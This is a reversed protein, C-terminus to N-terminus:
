RNFDAIESWRPGTSEFKWTSPTVRVLWEGEWFVLIINKRIIYCDLCLKRGNQWLARTQCVSLGVSLCVSLRVSNEDSSRTQMGHLATFLLVASFFDVKGRTNKSDHGWLHPFRAIIIKIWWLWPLLYLHYIYNFDFYIYMYCVEVEASQWVIVMAISLWCEIIELFNVKLQITYRREWHM